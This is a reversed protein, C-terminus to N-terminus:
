GHDEGTQGSGKLPRVEIRGVRAEPMRAVVHIAENLDRADILMVGGVQERAGAVPGETASVRGNRVRVTTATEGCRLVDDAVIYGRRRLEDAYALAEGALVERERESLAVLTKGENYILCLYKM